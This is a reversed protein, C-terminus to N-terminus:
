KNLQMWFFHWTRFFPAGFIESPYNSALKMNQKTRSCARALLSGNKQIHLEPNYRGFNGKEMIEGLLQEGESELPPVLMYEDSINFVKKIVYMTAGAFRLMRFEKLRTITAKQEEKTFGQVLVYYYDLLQRLGIGEQFLHRYIHLLIYIRNFDLTPASIYGENGLTIKNSTQRKIEQKFFKQLKRNTFYNYMWSPTFHIEIELNKLIPFDIHHYIPAATPFFKKVYKLITKRDAALWIDIDGSARREPEKYLTAIGQGKLIVNEFGEERFKQAVMVAQKNLFANQKTILQCINYWKLLVEKPPRMEAPLREIGSFTIGTLTQKKSLDFLEEWQQATPPISLKSGTGIGLRVLEFFIETINSKQM